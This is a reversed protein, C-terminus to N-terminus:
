RLPDHSAGEEAGFTQSSGLYSGDAGTWETQDGFQMSSAVPRGFADNYFVIGGFRDASGLYEGNPGNFFTTTQAAAPGALLAMTLTLAARTM